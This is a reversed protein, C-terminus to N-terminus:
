NPCVANGHSKEKVACTKCEIVDAIEGGETVRGVYACEDDFWRVESGPSVLFTLEVDVDGGVYSDAVRVAPELEVWRNGRKVEPQIFKCDDRWADVNWAPAVVTFVIALVCGGSSTRVVDIKDYM